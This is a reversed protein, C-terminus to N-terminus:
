RFSITGASAYHNKTGPYHFVTVHFKRNKFVAAQPAQVTLRNGQRRVNRLQFVTVGYGNGRTVDQIVVKLTGPTNWPFSGTTITFFQGLRVSGPTVSTNASHDVYPIGRIITRGPAPTPNTPPPNPLTPRTPLSFRVTGSVTLRYSANSWPGRPPAKVATVRVIYTGASLTKAVVDTNTGQKTSSGLMRGRTDYLGLNANDNLRDVTIRVQLAKTTSFKYYDNIDNGSVQEFLVLPRAAPNLTGLNTATAQTNDAFSSTAFAVFCFLNFMLLKM